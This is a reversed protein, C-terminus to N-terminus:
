LHKGNKVAVKGPQTESSIFGNVSSEISTQILSHNMKTFEKLDLPRSQQKDNPNDIFKAITDKESNELTINKM